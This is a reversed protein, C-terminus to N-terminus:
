RVAVIVMALTCRFFPLAEMTLTALLGPFQVPHKLLTSFLFLSVCHLLLRFDHARKRSFALVVALNDNLILIRQNVIPVVNGLRDCIKVMSRAELNGKRSTEESSGKSDDTATSESSTVRVLTQTNATADEGKTATPTSSDTARTRRIRM